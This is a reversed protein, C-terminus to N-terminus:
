ATWPITVPFSVKDPGRIPQAVWPQASVKVKTTGCAMGLGLPFHDMVSQAAELPAVEGQDKSWVVMIQLLGQDLRGSSIGQWRPANPLHNVLLYKAPPDTPEEGFIVTLPPSGVSLANARAMLAEAVQAAKGTAM